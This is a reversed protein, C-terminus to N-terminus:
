PAGAAGAAAAEAVPGEQAEGVGESSGETAAAHFGVGGNPGAGRSTGSGGVAEAAAACRSEAKTSRVEQQSGAKPHLGMSLAHLGM